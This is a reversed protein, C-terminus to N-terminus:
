LPLRFSRCDVGFAHQFEGEDVIQGLRFSTVPRRVIARGDGTFVVRRRAACEEFRTVAPIGITAGGLSCLFVRHHPCQEGCQRACCSWRECLKPDLEV